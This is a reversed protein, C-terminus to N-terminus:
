TGIMWNKPCRIGENMPYKAVWLNPSKLRQWVQWTFIGTHDAEKIRVIEFSFDAQIM